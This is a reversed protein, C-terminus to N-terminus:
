SLATQIGKRIEGVAVLLGYHNANNLFSAMWCAQVRLIGNNIAIDIANAQEESLHKALNEFDIVSAHLITLHFSTKQKSMYKYLSKEIELM